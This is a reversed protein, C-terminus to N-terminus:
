DTLADYKYATDHQPIRLDPTRDEGPSNLNKKEEMHIFRIAYAKKKKSEQKRSISDSRFSGDRCVAASPRRRRPRSFKTYKYKAHPLSDVKSGQGDKQM